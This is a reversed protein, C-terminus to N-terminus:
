RLEGYKVSAVVVCTEDPCKYFGEEIRVCGLCLTHCCPLLYLDSSNVGTECSSCMLHERDIPQSVSSLKIVPRSRSRGRVLLETRDTELCPESRQLTEKTGIPRDQDAEPLESLKDMSGKSARSKSRIGWSMRSLLIKNRTVM